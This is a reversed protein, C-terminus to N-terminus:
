RAGGATRLSAMALDLAAMPSGAAAMFSIDGLWATVGYQLDAAADHRFRVSTADHLAAALATNLDSNHATM